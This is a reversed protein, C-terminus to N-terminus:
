EYIDNEKMEDILDSLENLRIGNRILLRKSVYLMFDIIKRTVGIKFSLLQFSLKLKSKKDIFQM